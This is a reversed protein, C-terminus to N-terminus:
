ALSRVSVTGLGLITTEYVTDKQMAQAATAAGAMIISGAPLVQGKEALLQSVQVLCRLPDGLIAATSGAQVLRGNETMNVGCNSIDTSVPRMAGLVFGASSTNDAVVDELTFKFAQYRSDIIEMAPCVGEIADLAEALNMARDIPKRTIFAVEPEIRPHIFRELDVAGGEELQMADTIVGWILHDVGMQKMKERSTFGLKVGVRQEGRAERLAVGLEQIAYAAQLDFPTDTRLSATSQKNLVCDDLRKAIDNLNM